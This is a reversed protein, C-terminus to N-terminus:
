PATCLGTCAERAGMSHPWCPQRLQAPGYTFELSPRKELQDYTVVPLSFRCRQKVPSQETFAIQVTASCFPNQYVAQGLVVTLCVCRRSGALAVVNPAGVLSLSM